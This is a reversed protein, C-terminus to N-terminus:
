RDICRLPGRCPREACEVKLVSNVGTISKEIGDLTDQVDRLVDKIDSIGALILQTQAKMDTFGAKVDAQVGRVSDLIDQNTPQPPGFVGFMDFLGGLLTGQLLLCSPSKALLVMLDATTM